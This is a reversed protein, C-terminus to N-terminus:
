YCVHTYDFYQNATLNRPSMKLSCPIYNFILPGLKGKGEPCNYKLSYNLREGPVYLIHCIFGKLLSAMKVETYFHFIKVINTFTQFHNFCMQLFLLM